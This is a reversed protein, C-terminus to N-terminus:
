VSCVAYILLKGEAEVSHPHGDVLGTNAITLPEWSVHGTLTETCIVGKFMTFM